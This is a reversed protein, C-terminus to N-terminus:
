AFNGSLNIAPISIGTRSGCIHKFSNFRMAPFGPILATWRGFENSLRTWEPFIDPAKVGVSKGEIRLSQAKQNIQDSRVANHDARIVIGRHINSFWVREDFLYPKGRLVPVM